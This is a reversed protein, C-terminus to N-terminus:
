IGHTEYWRPDRSDPAVTGDHRRPDLFKEQPYKTPRLKKRTPIEHTWFEKERTNRSDLIKHNEILKLLFFFFFM